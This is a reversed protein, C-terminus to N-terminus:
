CHPFVPLIQQFVTTFESLATEMEGAIETPQIMEKSLHKKM